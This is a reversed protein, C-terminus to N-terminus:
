ISSCPPLPLIRCLALKETVLLDSKVSEANAPLDVPLYLGVHDTDLDFHVFAPLPPNLDNTSM